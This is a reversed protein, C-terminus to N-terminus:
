YQGSRPSALVLLFDGNADTWSQEWDLGVERLEHRLREPTFKASIETLLDEGLAFSTKLGLAEFHIDVSERARLRMEIWSSEDNWRAVHDFLEPDFNAGLRRNLVSLVNRNFAATVGASDDYAAVLRAPDKVLDVGLLFRDHERLTGALEDLFTHRQEPAFNGITGGLFAVLRRRGDTPIQELHRHFDGAVAHLSLKPYETSLAACAARLTPESIDFAVFRELGRATTADLLLRTKDSTGSGLEVLTDCGAAEAIADSSAALISREAETPYYEALRTIQDFLDCGVEDYFWVPPLSKPVSAFGALVDAELAADLDAETVHVDVRISLATDDTM